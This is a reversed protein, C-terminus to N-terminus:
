FNEEALPGFKGSRTSYGGVAVCGQGPVCSVGGFASTNTHPPVTADVTWRAGNWHEALLRVKNQVMADGVAACRGTHPCSVSVLNNAANAGGIRPMSVITWATGDWREALTQFSHGGGATGVAMCVTRSHCSVAELQTDANDGSPAPITQATWHRGDWSEALPVFGSSTRVQGVAICSRYSRCSVGLFEASV